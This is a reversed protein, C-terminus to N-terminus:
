EKNKVRTRVENVSAEASKMSQVERKTIEVSRCLDVTRKLTLDVERLLREQLGKEKMSFVIKDRIMNDNELFECAKALTRLETLYEDFGKGRIPQVGM